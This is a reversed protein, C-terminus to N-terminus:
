SSKKKQMRNGFTTLFSEDYDDNKFRFFLFITGIFEMEHCYSYVESIFYELSMILRHHGNFFSEVYIRPFEYFVVGM